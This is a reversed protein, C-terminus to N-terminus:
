LRTEATAEKSPLQLLPYHREEVKGLAHVIELVSPLNEKALGEARAVAQPQNDFLALGKGADVREVLWFHDKRRVAYRAVVPHVTSSPKV